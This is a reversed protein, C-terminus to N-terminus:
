GIELKSLAPFNTNYLLTESFGTQRIFDTRKLLTAMYFAPPQHLLLVARLVLFSQQKGM